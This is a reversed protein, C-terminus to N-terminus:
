TTTFVKWSGTQYVQPEDTTTNYIMQGAVPSQLADRQTTTLKPIFIGQATLYGILNMYFTAMFDTWVPSMKNTDERILPDYTPFEDFNSAM